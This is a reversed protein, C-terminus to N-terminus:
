LEVAREAHKAAIDAAQDGDARVRALVQRRTLAVAERLKGDREAASALEELLSLGVHGEERRREREEHSFGAGDDRVVLRQGELVDRLPNLKLRIGLQRLSQSPQIFTRGVYRNKVLGEAYPIGSQQSYGAAAALGPGAVVGALGGIGAPSGRRVPMDLIQEAIEPMGELIAGGGTLVIGSNLSKEYGARRIEDWM